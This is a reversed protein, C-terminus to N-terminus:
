PRGRDLAARVVGRGIGGSAGLVVVPLSSPPPPLVMGNM